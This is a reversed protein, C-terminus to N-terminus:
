KRKAEFEIIVNVDDGVWGNAVAYSMGYASRKFSGKASVGMTYPKGPLPSEASKNWTAQLTLPQSKGLLELQGPIEFTRDGTRKAAAATFVMRPFEKVNLFDGGKLHSDRQRQNSFVSDTDVEVRVESLAASAEDFRYSGRGKLFMGLTKGYGIHDVMFGLSLHDPDIEYSAAQARAAGPAALLALALAFALAGLRAPDPLSRLAHKM